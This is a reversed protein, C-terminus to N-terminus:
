HRTRTWRLPNAPPSAVWNPMSRGCIAEIIEAAALFRLIAIDGETLSRSQGYAKKASGALVAGVTAAGGALVGTKLFSRRNVSPSVVEKVKKM